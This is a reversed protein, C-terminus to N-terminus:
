IKSLDEFSQNFVFDNPLSYNARCRIVAAEIQPVCKPRFGTARHQGVIKGDPGRGKQEFLFIDQLLITDGEMGQVETIHTIKRSGDSLRSQQVILQVASSIQKSIVRVPLDAGVDLSLTELRSITDRPTNSHVPPFRVTTATNMAQLMDLTEGGRCEGVIIRDPVCVCLTRV